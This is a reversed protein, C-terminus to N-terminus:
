KKNLNDELWKAARERFEKKAGSSKVYEAFVILEDRTYTTRNGRGTAVRLGVAKAYKNATEQSCEVITCLTSNPFTAAAENGRDNQQRQLHSEQNQMEVAAAVETSTSEPSRKVSLVARELTLMQSIVESQFGSFQKGIELLRAVARQDGALFMSFDEINMQMDAVDTKCALIMDAVQMTINWILDHHSTANIDRLCIPIPKQSNMAIQAWASSYSAQMREFHKRFRMRHYDFRVIRLMSEAPADCPDFSFVHRLDECIRIEDSLVGDVILPPVCPRDPRANLAGSETIQFSDVYAILEAWSADPPSFLKAIEGAPVRDDLLSAVMSRDAIPFYEVRDTRGTVSPWVVQVAYMVLERSRKSVSRAFVGAPHDSKALLGRAALDEFERILNWGSVGLFLGDLECAPRIWGPGIDRLIACHDLIDLQTASLPVGNSM